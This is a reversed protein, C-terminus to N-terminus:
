QGSNLTALSEPHVMLGAAIAVAFSVANGVLAIFHGQSADERRERGWGAAIKAAVWGGIFIPLHKPAWIFLTTAVIRESAGVWFHLAHFVPRDKFGVSIHILKLVIGCILAGGIASFVYAIVYDAM